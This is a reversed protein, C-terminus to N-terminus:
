TELDARLFGCVAKFGEEFLVLSLQAPLDGVGVAKECFPGNLHAPPTIYRNHRKSTSSAVPGANPQDKQIMKEVVYIFTLLDTDSRHFPRELPSSHQLRM